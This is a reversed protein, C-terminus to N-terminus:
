VKFFLHLIKTPNLLKHLLNPLSLIIIKAPSPFAPAALFTTSIQTPPHSKFDDQVLSDLLCINKGKTNLPFCNTPKYVAM